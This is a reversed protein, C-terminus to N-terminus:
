VWNQPASGDRKWLLLWHQAGSITHRNEGAQFEHAYPTTTILQCFQSLTAYMWQKREDELALKQFRRGFAAWEENNVSSMFRQVKGPGYM